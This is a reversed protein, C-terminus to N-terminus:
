GQLIHSAQISVRGQQEWASTSVLRISRIHARVGLYAGIAASLALLEEETITAPAAAPQAPAQALAQAVDGAPKGGAQQELIEIRRAIDTFQAQLQELMGAFQALTVEAM